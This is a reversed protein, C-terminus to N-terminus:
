ILSTLAAGADKAVSFLPEPYVGFAITVLACAVAVFVVEPQRLGTRLPEAGETFDSAVVAGTDPPDRARRRRARPRRRAEEDAEPSGGAIAPRARVVGRAGGGVARADLGGRGRAPLVGLSVASGLVIVIGLWAYGNDVAADILYVKGFFGATAPFGALALMAITM